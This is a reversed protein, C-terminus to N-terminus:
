LEGPSWFYVSTIFLKMTVSILLLPCSMRWHRCGGTAVDEQSLQQSHATQSNGEPNTEVHTKFIISFYGESKKSMLLLIRGSKDRKAPSWPMSPNFLGKVLPGM